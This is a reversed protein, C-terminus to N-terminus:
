KAFDFEDQDPHVPDPEWPDPESLILLKDDPRSDDLIEIENGDRKGLGNFWGTGLPNDVDRGQIWWGGESDGSFEVRYSKESYNGQVVAGVNIPHHSKTKGKRWVM